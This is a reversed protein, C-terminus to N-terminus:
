TAPKLDIKEGLAIEEGEATKRDVKYWAYTAIHGEMNDFLHITVSVDDSVEIYATSPVNGDHKAAYYDLAMQSLEEDTYGTASSETTEAKTTESATTESTTTESTTTESVTAETASTVENESKEISNGKSCATLLVAALSLIAITKIFSKM